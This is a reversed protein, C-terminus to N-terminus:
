NFIEALIRSSRMEDEHKPDLFNVSLLLEQVKWSKDLYSVTIGFFKDGNPNTWADATM